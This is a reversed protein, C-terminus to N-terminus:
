EIPYAYSRGSKLSFLNTPFHMHLDCMAVGQESPNSHGPQNHLKRLIRDNHSLDFLFDGEGNQYGSIVFRHAESTKIHLELVISPRYANM